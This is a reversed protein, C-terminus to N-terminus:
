DNWEFDSDNRFCKALFEAAEEADGRDVFEAYSGDGRYVAWGSATQRVAYEADDTFWVNNIKKAM